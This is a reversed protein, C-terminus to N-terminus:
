LATLNHAAKIKAARHATIWGAMTGAAISAAVATLLTMMDIRVPLTSSETTASAGDTSMGEHEGGQM